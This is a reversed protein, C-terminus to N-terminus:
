KIDKSSDAETKDERIELFIPLFLSEEGQKNKIRANYKVAVIKNVVDFNKRQEDKLGSGVSVKVVGDASECVYAGVLGKYKGQGEEVAVIKLDCDLEGKFKIQKKSRKNEWIMDTTKLIIGEQGESLYEQFIEQAEQIDTVKVTEVIDVLKGYDSNNKMDSIANKLKAFRTDYQEADVGEEFKEFTIADWLTARVMSAETESQTGKVAKNLIGNGTQRDLLNNDEDAVLLEGDFVMDCKYHNAMHVFPQQFSESPIYIERGNRSRFEVGGNRVIANFRMGDLKLQVYAPFNVKGVLKEDYASALMCPYEKILGPWVANVTGTSAGCRIDKAIIREIVKADGEDLNSLIHTLHDIGANGTVARSSLQSLQSLAESLHWVPGTTKTYKPIKRIYFQILPDLALVIVDQLLENDKHQNLVDIKFNRSANSNLHEFIQNINM